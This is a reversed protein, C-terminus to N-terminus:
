FFEDSALFSESLKDLAHLDNGWSLATDVWFRLGDVDPLRDFYLEYLGVIEDTLHSTLDYAVTVGKEVLTRGGDASQTQNEISTVRSVSFTSFTQAQESRVEQDAFKIQQINQLFDTQETGSILEKLILGSDTRVVQYDSVRGRYVSTNVGGGGDVTDNGTDYAYIFDHGATGTTKDNLGDSMILASDTIAIDFLPGIIADSHQAASIIVDVTNIEDINLFGATLKEVLSQKLAAFQAVAESPSAGLDWSSKRLDLSVINDDVYYDFM